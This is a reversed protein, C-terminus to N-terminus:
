ALHLHRYGFSGPTGPIGVSGADEAAAGSAGGQAIAATRKEGGRFFVFFFVCLFFSNVTLRLYLWSRSHRGECVSNGEAVDLRQMLVAITTSTSPVVDISM